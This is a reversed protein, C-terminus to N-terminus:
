EKILKYEDKNILLVERGTDLFYTNNEDKLLITNETKSVFDLYIVINGYQHIWQCKETNNPNLYEIKLIKIEDNITAKYCNVIKYQNFSYEM